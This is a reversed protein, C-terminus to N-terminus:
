PSTFEGLQPGLIPGFAPDDIAAEEVPSFRANYKQLEAAALEPPSLLLALSAM